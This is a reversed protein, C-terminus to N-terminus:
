LPPFFITVAASGGLARGYAFCVGGRRLEEPNVGSAPSPQGPTWRWDASWDGAGHVTLSVYPGPALFPPDEDDSPQVVVNAALLGLASRPCGHAHALGIIRDLIARVAEPTTDAEGLSPPAQVPIPALTELLPLLHM